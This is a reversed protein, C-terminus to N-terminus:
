INVYSYFLVYPLGVQKIQAFNIQNVFADNFKYWQCNNSNKCYAIFHGGMDNSGIHCIIGVLEYYYPSDNFFVYQRINLYEGFEINVNFQLGRGRNLNIILTPPSYVIKSQNYAPYLQRCYNCYCSPYIEQKEYYEFCDEIKVCNNQYNKFIRVEELPFFLINISQVNHITINCSGCTTMSNVYGYFENRIISQNENNYNTMFETFVEQFNQNNVTYVNDLTNNPAENLETHITQLIFLVLYKPDNAAVGKFLPNM